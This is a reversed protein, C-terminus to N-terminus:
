PSMRRLGRVAFGCLLLAGVVIVIVGPGVDGWRIHDGVWGVRSMNIIRTMPNWRAAVKLWGSMFSIPVQVPAISTSLFVVMFLLPVASFSKARLGMGIGWGAGLMAAGEAALVMPVLALPGSRNFRAGEAMGIVTVLTVPVLTRAMAALYLGAVLASRKIPALLLRDYFKTQIDRILGIGTTMGVIAASNVCTYPLIWAFITKAPFGPAAKVVGSYAGALAVIFLFPFVLSPIFAAPLRTISVLNRVAIAKTVPWFGSRNRSRERETTATSVVATM